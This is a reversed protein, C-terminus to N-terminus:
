ARRRVRIRGFQRPISHPCGAVPERSARRGLLLTAGFAISLAGVLIPFQSAAGTNPLAAVARSPSVTTSAGVTTTSSSPPTSTTTAITSAPAASTTTTTPAPDVDAISVTFTTAFGNYYAAASAAVAHVVVTNTSDHVGDHLATVTISRSQPWEAATWTVSPASLSVRSPDDVTFTVVVTPNPDPGPAIIPADLVLSVTQSDGEQLVLPNPAPSVKLAYAAGAFAGLTAIVVGAFVAFLRISRRTRNARPEYM